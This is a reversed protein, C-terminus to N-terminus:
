HTKDPCPLCNAYMWDIIAHTQRHPGLLLATCANREDDKPKVM